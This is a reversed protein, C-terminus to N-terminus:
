NPRDSGQEPDFKKEGVIGQNEGGVAPHDVGGLRHFCYGKPIALIRVV